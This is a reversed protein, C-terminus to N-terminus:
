QAGPETSKIIGWWGTVTETAGPPMSNGPNNEGADSAPVTGIPAVPTPASQAEPGCESRYYAWEDCQSGDPFVCVGGQSGDAATVIEHKNGNQECYLSAPNPLGPQASPLTAPEPTPAACAALALVLLALMLRIKMTEQKRKNIFQWSECIPDPL